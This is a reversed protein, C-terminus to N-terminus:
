DCFINIKIDVFGDNNPTFNAGPMVVIDKSTINVRASQSATFTNDFTISNRSTFLRLGSTYNLTITYNLNESSIADTLYGTLLIFAKARAGQGNTFINRCERGGYTMINETPFNYISGDCEDAVNGGIVDCSADVENETHNLDAPTDCLLDGTSSCNVCAGGSRRVNERGNSTEFTHYLGFCHGMEHALTSENTTSFVATSVISLYYNPIAYATGNLDEDDADNTLTNHVFITIFDNKVFPFLDSEESKDHNNLDTDRVEELGGLVFCINQPAYFQAMNGIQRLVDADNAARQTGNDNAFIVVYLKICYPETASVRLQAMRQNVLNTDIIGAINRMGSCESKKRQSFSQFQIGLVFLFALLLINKM